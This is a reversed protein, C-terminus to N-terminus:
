LCSIENVIDIFGFSFIVRDLHGLTWGVSVESRIFERSESEVVEFIFSGVSSIKFM